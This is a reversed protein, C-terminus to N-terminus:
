RPEYGTRIGTGEVTTTFTVPTRGRLSKLNTYNTHVCCASTDGASDNCDGM